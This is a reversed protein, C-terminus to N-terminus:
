MGDTVLRRGHLPQLPRANAPVIRRFAEIQDRSVSVPDTMVLWSVEETCPPTTLSGRYRWTTRRAPLLAAADVTGEIVRAPGPDEPLSRWLSALARNPEGEELFVGVVALAGDAGAHVLHLEMPYAAGGVTHEGPHHFHFQQLEFRKGEVVIGSGPRTDFQINRGDNGVGIPGPAYDFVIEPLNRYEAEALDVPSQETGCGCRAFRPDLAGWHAPGITGGYGWRTTAPDPEM